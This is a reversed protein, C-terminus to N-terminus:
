QSWSPALQTPPGLPLPCPGYQLQDLNWWVSTRMAALLVSVSFAYSCVADIAFGNSVRTMVFTPTHPFPVSSAPSAHSSVPGQQSWVVQVNRDAAVTHREAAPTQSAASDHM